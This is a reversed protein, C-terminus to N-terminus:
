GNASEDRVLGSDRQEKKRAVVLAGPNGRFLLSWESIIGQLFLLFLSVAREPPGTIRFIHTGCRKKRALFATLTM